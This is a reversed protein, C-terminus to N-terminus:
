KRSLYKGPNRLRALTQCTLHREGELGRETWLNRRDIGRCSSTTSRSQRKFYTEYLMKAVIVLAYQANSRSTSGSADPDKLTLRGWLPLGSGKVPWFMRIYVGPPFKDRFHDLM